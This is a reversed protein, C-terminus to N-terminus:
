WRSMGSAFLIGPRKASNETQRQSLKGGPVTFYELTAHVLLRAAERSCQANGELYSDVALRFTEGTFLFFTAEKANGSNIERQVNQIAELREAIASPWRLKNDM